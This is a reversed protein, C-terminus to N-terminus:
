GSRKLLVIEMSHQAGSTAIQWHVQRRRCEVFGLKAYLCLAPANKASTSVTLPLDGFAQIAHLVLQSAVGRRHHAPLVALSAIHPSGLSEGSWCAIEAPEVGIVGIMAAAATGDFAGTFQERSARIDDITRHLPPFDRPDDLGLLM